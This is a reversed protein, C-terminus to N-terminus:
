PPTAQSKPAPATQAPPQQTQPQPSTTDPSPTTQEPQTQLNPVTKEPDTAQSGPQTQQTETEPQTKTKTQDKKKGPLLTFNRDGKGVSQGAILEPLSLALAAIVFAIAATGLIVKWHLRGSKPTARYVRFEPPDSRGTDGLYPDRVPPERAPQPDWEERPPPAGAGAAEPLVDTEQRVAPIDTTLRQAIKETPRNLLESVLAVIVPTVAAAVPTGAIWFQSTIIAAMASGISAIVLTRISLRREEERSRAHSSM